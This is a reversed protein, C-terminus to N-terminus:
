TEYERWEAVLGSGDLRVTACAARERVPEGQGESVGFRYIVCARRDQAIVEDVTFRWDPGAAAFRAFHAGIADRGRLPAKRAEQYLADAAFSALAEALAGRAFADLVRALAPALPHPPPMLPV